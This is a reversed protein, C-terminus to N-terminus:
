EEAEGYILNFWYINDQRSLIDQLLERRRHYEKDFKEPNEKQILERLEFIVKNFYEDMNQKQDDDLCDFIGYGVSPKIKYNKGKETLNIILVRKDERSPVKIIFGAKELKNLLYNVSSVSVDLLIALDKSSFGDKAQLIALIRGQGRSINNIQNQNMKSKHEIMQNILNLKHYLKENMLFIVEVCKM